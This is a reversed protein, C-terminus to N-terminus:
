FLKSIIALISLYNSFLFILPAITRFGIYPIYGIANAKSKLEKYGLIIM